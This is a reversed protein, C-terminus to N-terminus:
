SKAEAAPSGTTENELERCFIVTAQVVAGPIIFLAFFPVMMYLASAAGFGFMEWFNGFILKYRRRLPWKHRAAPYDFFEDLFFIVTICFSLISGAVPIFNLFLSVILLVAFVTYRKTLNLVTFLSNKLFRKFEFPPAPKGTITEEVKESLLDYFPGGIIGGIVTFSVLSLLVIIVLALIWALYYAIYWLGYLVTLWFGEAAPPAGMAYAALSDIWGGLHSFLLYLLTTYIIANILVPVACYRTLGSNKFIFDWGKFPYFAASLFRGM